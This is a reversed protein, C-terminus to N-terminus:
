NILSTDFARRSIRIVHHNPVSSYSLVVPLLPRRPHEGQFRHAKLIQQTIVIANSILINLDFLLHKRFCWRKLFLFASTITLQITTRKSQLVHTM